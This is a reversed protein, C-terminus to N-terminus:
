ATQLRKGAGHGVFAMFVCVALLVCEPAFFSGTADYLAGILMPGPAAFAYGMNSRGSGPPGTILWSNTMGSTDVAGRKSAKAANTFLAIADDQGSLVDWVTM